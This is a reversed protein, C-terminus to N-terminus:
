LAWFRAASRPTDACAIPRARGALYRCEMVHMTIRFHSYAHRVTMLPRVVRIRVGTEERVERRLAEELTEGPEVKGGPFEWLGGLQKHAPRKSLLVRGDKDILAVAAVLVIKM